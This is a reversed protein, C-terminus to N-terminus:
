LTFANGTYQFCSCTGNWAFLRGASARIRGGSMSVRGGLTSASVYASGVSGLANVVASTAANGRTAHLLGDYLAFSDCSGYVYTYDANSSPQLGYGKMRDLCRKGTATPPSQNPNQTDIAPLWGVGRAHALQSAPANAALIGAAAVSSLAYGPSYHQTEAVTSFLNM